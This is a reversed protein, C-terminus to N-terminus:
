GKLIACPGVVIACPGVVAALMITEERGRTKMGGGDTIRSFGVKVRASMRGSNANDSSSSSSSGGGGLFGAVIGADTDGGSWLMRGGAEGDGRGTADGDMKEAMSMRSFLRSEDSSNMLMGPLVGRLEEVSVEAHTTETRSMSLMSRGPNLERIDLWSSGTMRIPAGRDRTGLRSVTMMAVPCLIRTGLWSSISAARTSELM